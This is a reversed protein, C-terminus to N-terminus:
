FDIIYLMHVTCMMRMCGIYVYVHVLGLDNPMIWMFMFIFMDRYM